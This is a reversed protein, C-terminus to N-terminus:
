KKNDMHRSKMHFAFGFNVNARLSLPLLNFPLQDSLMPARFYGVPLYDGGIYFTPGTKPTFELIFGLTRATNVFSYNLGLAFWKCPTLNYSLTLENRSYSHSIRSSYLLGVSMLNNLFPMEAGVYFRPMASVRFGSSKEETLNLLGEKANETLDKIANEFDMNDLSVDQFGAWETYGNTKFSSVADAKYGIVGLDTVAVSVSLGDFITGLNLTYEAGLDFSFGTGALVKNSLMRGLDFGFEPMMEGQATSLEHGQAAVHVYGETTLAWKELSTDLRVNELNIGGYVLPAIFRVKAGARLGDIINRSYGLSAQLATTVYGNMNGINYSQGTTGTGKKLFVFLDAPLDIDAMARLDLDFTWYSHQKTYFGFGLLTTNLEVDFHPHAPLRREFEKLSVDKHLFTKLDGNKPYLFTPIDLNSVASLGLNGIGFLQFYNSRPAFAPNMEHRNLSNDLFYSGKLAQAGALFPMMFLVAAAFTYRRTM